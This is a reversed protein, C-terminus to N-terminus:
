TPTHLLFTERSVNELTSEPESFLISGGQACHDEMISELLTRTKKDLNAFPEDLIWLDFSGCLVRALSVRQRQGQSLQQIRKHALPKLQFDELAKAATHGYFNAWFTLTEHVTMMRNQFDQHGVFCLSADSKIHHKNNPILGALTRLLTTKGSGNSGVVRYIKGPFIELSIAQTVPIGARQIPPIDAKLLPKSIVAADM